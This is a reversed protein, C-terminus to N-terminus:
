IDDDSSYKKIIERMKDVVQRANKETIDGFRSVAVLDDDSPKVGFCKVCLKALLVEGQSTLVEPEAEPPPPPAGEAPPSGGEQGEEEPPPPPPPADAETILSAFRSFTKNFNAM